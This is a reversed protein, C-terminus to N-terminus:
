TMHKIKDQAHSVIVQEWMTIVILELNELVMGQMNLISIDLLFDVYKIVESFHDKPFLSNM